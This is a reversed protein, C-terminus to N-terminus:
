VTNAHGNYVSRFLFWDRFRTLADDDAKDERYALYHRTEELIMEQEVPKILSGDEILPAVLHDWGLAVGQDNLVM